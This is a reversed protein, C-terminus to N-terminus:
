SSGPMLGRSGLRGLIADWAGRLMYTVKLWRNQEFLLLAVTGKWFDTLEYAARERDNRMYRRLLVIRNRTIFYRRQPNHNTVLIHRGAFVHPTMKGLSHELVANRSEVIRYGAARMRLAYETDVGDIFLQDEFPGLKQYTESKMLSGSTICALPEGNSGKPLPWMAGLGVDRYIPCVVGIKSPDSSEMYTSILGQVYGEGVRSDQDFTIIWECGLSIAHRVGINLATAIGLNKGNRIVTCEARQELEDIVTQPNTSPTNDVVIIPGVQGALIAINQLIERSPNYSVIVAGVEPEAMITMRCFVALIQSCPHHYPNGEFGSAPRLLGSGEGITSSTEADFVHHHMARFEVNRLCREKFQEPTGAPLDRASDHLALIEDLHFLDADETM